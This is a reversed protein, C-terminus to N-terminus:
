AQQFAKRKTTAMANVKLRNNHYLGVISCLVTTMKVRIRSVILSVTCQACAMQVWVDWCYSYILSLDSQHAEARRSLCDATYTGMCQKWSYLVLYRQYDDPITQRDTETDTHMYADTRSIIRTHRRPFSSIAINQSLLLTYRVSTVDNFGCCCCCYRERWADSTLKESTRDGVALCGTRVM